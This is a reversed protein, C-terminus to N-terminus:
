DFDFSYHQHHSQQCLKVMETLESRNEQLNTIREKGRKKKEKKCQIFTEFLSCFLFLKKVNVYDFRRAFAFSSFFFFGHLNHLLVLLKLRMKECLYFVLSLSFSSCAATRHVHGDISMCRENNNKLM